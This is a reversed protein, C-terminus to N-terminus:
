SINKRKPSKDKGPIKLNSISLSRKLRIYLIEMDSNGDVRMYEVQRKLDRKSLHLYLEAWKQDLLQNFEVKPFAHLGDNTMGLKDLWKRYRLPHRFKEVAYLDHFDVHIKLEKATPSIGLLNLKEVFFTTVDEKYADNYRYITSQTQTALLEDLMHISVEAKLRYLLDYISLYGKFHNRFRYGNVLFIDSRFILPGNLFPNQFLLAALLQNDKYPGNEKMSYNGSVAMKCGCVGVKTDSELYNVLVKLFDKDLKHSVDLFVCYKASIEAIARNFQYALGHAEDFALWQIIANGLPGSKKDLDSTNGDDIIFFDFDSFSQNLVSLVLPESLQANGRLPLFIAVRHSM